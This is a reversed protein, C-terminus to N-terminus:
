LVTVELGDIQEQANGEEEQLERLQVVLEHNSRPKPTMMLDCHVVKLLRVCAEHRVDFHTHLPPTLGLGRRVLREQLQAPLVLLLLLLQFAARRQLLHGDVVVAVLEQQLHDGDGLRVHLADAAVRQQRKM